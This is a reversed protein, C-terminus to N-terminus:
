VGPKSPLEGEEYPDFDTLQGVGAVKSTPAVPQEAGSQSGLVKAIAERTKKQPNTAKGNLINLITVYSVATARHLETATMDEAALQRSVWASYAPIDLNPSDDLAGIVAELLRVQAETPQSKELEWQSIVPQQVKVKRALEAQSLGSQERLSRIRTGLLAM